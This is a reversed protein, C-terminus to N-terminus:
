VSEQHTARITNLVVMLDPSARRGVHDTITFRGRWVFPKQPQVPNQPPHSDSLQHNFPKGMSASMNGAIVGFNVAPNSAGINANNFINQPAPNTGAPLTNPQAAPIALPYYGLTGPANPISPPSPSSAGPLTNLSPPSTYRAIAIQPESQGPPSLPPGWIATGSVTSGPPDELSGQVNIDLSPLDPQMGRDSVTYAPHQIQFLTRELWVRLQIVDPRSHPEREWCSQLTWWTDELDSLHIPPHEAPPVGARIDVYIM